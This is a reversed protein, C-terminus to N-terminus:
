QSCTLHDYRAEYIQVYEGPLSSEPVDSRTLQHLAKKVREYLADEKITRKLAEVIASTDDVLQELKAKNSIANLPLRSLTQVVFLCIENAIQKKVLEHM